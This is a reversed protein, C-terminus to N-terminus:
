VRRSSRQRFHRARSYSWLMAVGLLGCAVVFTLLGGLGPDPDPGQRGGHPGTAVIVVIMVLGVAFVSTLTTGTLFWIAMALGKLAAVARGRPAQHARVVARVSGFSSIAAEAAETETLGAAQGAAMSERLHDEAEALIRSTEEPRTRLSARLERLYEEVPGTM